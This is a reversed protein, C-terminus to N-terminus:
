EPVEGCTSVRRTPKSSAGNIKGCARGNTAQPPVGLRNNDPREVAMCRCRSDQRQCVGALAERSFSRTCKPSWGPGARKEGGMLISQLLVAQRRFLHRDRQRPTRQQIASPWKTPSVDRRDRRTVSRATQSVCTSGPQWRVMPPKRHNCNCHPSRDTTFHRGPNSVTPQSSPM